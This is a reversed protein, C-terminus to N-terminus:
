PNLEIPASDSAEATVSKGELRISRAKVSGVNEEVGKETLVRNGADELRNLEAVPVRFEVRESTVLADDAEIRVSGDLRVTLEGDTIAAFYIKLASMRCDKMEIAANGSLQIALSGDKDVNFIVHEATGRIKGASITCVGKSADIRIPGIRKKDARCNAA